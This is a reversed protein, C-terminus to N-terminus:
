VDGDLYYKFSGGTLRVCAIHVGDARLDGIRRHWGLCIKALEYNYLGYRGAEKLAKYVKTTQSAETHKVPALPEVPSPVSRLAKYLADTTRSSSKGTIWM